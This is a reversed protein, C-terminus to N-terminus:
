RGVSVREAKAGRFIVLTPQRAAARSRVAKRQNLAQATQPGALDALRVRRLAPNDAPALPGVPVAATEGTGRIAVTEATPLVALRLEGAHAALMLRSIDAEQVALVASRSRKGTQRNRDDGANSSSARGAADNSAAGPLLGDLRGKKDGQSAPQPRAGAGSADDVVIDGLALV